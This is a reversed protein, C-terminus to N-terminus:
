VVEKQYCEICAVKQYDLEPPYYHTIDKKCFHCSGKQPNALKALVGIRQLMRSDPHETPLPINYQRYFALDNLAINFRYGTKPCVLAKSSIDDGADKINDPLESTAMGEGGSEVTEWLGGMYEVESREMPFFIQATSLNYGGRALSMPFFKGWEGDSKMKAIIKRTLAEYEEKPYQKNLICYKKKRMGICGFCYECEECYELYRSYRTDSTWNVCVVDFCTVSNCNNAGKEIWAGSIDIAEKCNIGRFMYRCNESKEFFYCEYCNKCETLFNGTSNTNKLSNYNQRHIVNKAVLENFKKKLREVTERSGLDYEALRKEYEEKTLQVNEWCYSKNRLNWCMFCNQVNRCDYLFTSNICDKCNFCYKIKSCKFCYLSDYSYETYFCYTIDMSFKSYFSRYCYRLDEGNLIARCFYCNKSWWVDDGWDSDTNGVGTHHPIPVVKQLEEFQDLFSRSQDYDRGYELSDWKDSVWEDRAYIPSPNMEALPTIITKGSLDCKAKRFKGFRWFALTHKWRCIHCQDPVPVDMSQYMVVDDPHIEYDKHCNSCTKTELNM